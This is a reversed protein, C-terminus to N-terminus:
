SPDNRAVAEPDYETEFLRAGCDDCTAAVVDVSRCCSEVVEGALTISGDCIPCRQLCIRLGSLLEMRRPPSLSEWRDLRTSLLDAAALDAVLAARSEWLSVTRGDLRAAVPEGLSVVQLRGPDVELISALRAQHDGDDVTGMRRFWTREFGPALALDDGGDVVTGTRRLLGEADFDDDPDAPREIAWPRHEFRRLVPDPLLRETLWPTGPVLYGRLYIVTASVVLVVGGATPRVTWTAGALVGALLVNGVTCPTCRNAGTYEPRRFRDMVSPIMDLSAM